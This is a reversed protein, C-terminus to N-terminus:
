TLEELLPDAALRNALKENATHFTDGVALSIHPDAGFSVHKVGDEQGDERLRFSRPQPTEESATPQPKPAM